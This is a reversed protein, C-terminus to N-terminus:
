PRFGGQVTNTTYAPWTITNEEPTTKNVQPSAAWMFPVFMGLNFLAWSLNAILSASLGERVVGIILGIGALGAYTLHPIVRRMYNGARKKKSTVVFRSPLRLITAVLALLHISFASMSFSLAGYSYTFGCSRQLIYLNLFIYPLFVTALAMTATTVATAGTFLFLLPLLIGVLVVVGSLYYSASIIYHLKQMIRTGRRLFPNHRFIVELSGRAWRYQQTYYADFDEPALGEALVEPVYYSKWGREHIFLSTLFDEAINTECMGGAEHLARRSVVLNTGCMFAAHHRNKGKMIPGFFLSQQDWASQTIFNNTQNKYFQPTQVFGMRKNTFYGMTGKLFDRHPVHDADFIAIFDSTTKQLAHNINGAKAGGPKQRTIVAVGLSKGLEEIDQWNDKKAVFGDNLIYVHHAPYDLALAARATEAVVEVPEGAVTIFVDVPATFGRDFPARAKLDWVTFVYGLVQLVHYIEGIVLAWFLLLSGHQFFLSLLLLYLLSMVVNIVLLQRSAGGALFAPTTRKITRM